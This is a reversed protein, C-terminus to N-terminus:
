SFLLVTSGTVFQGLGNERATIFQHALLGFSYPLVLRSIILISWHPLSFFLLLVTHLALYVCHLMQFCHTSMRDNVTWKNPKLSVKLLASLRQKSVSVHLLGFNDVIILLCWFNVLEVWPSVRNTRSWVCVLTTIILETYIEESMFRDPLCSRIFDLPRTVCQRIPDVKIGQRGWYIFKETCPKLTQMAKARYWCSGQMKLLGYKRPFCRLPRWYRLWRM